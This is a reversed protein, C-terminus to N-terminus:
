NITGDFAPVNSIASSDLATHFGQAVQQQHSRGRETLRAFWSQVSMDVVFGKAAGDYPLRNSHGKRIAFIRFNEFRDGIM